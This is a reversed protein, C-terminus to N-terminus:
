DLQQFTIFKVQNVLSYHNSAGHSALSFVEPNTISFRDTIIEAAFCFYLFSGTGLTMIVVDYWPIFNTRQKGKKAPFVLFGIFLIFAMFSTLRVEDLWTAFFTVYICFLSFSALIFSIILKPTGEWVRTNSERDYKKMVDDVSMPVNQALDTKKKFFAM